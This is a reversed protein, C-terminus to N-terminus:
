RRKYAKLKLNKILFTLTLSPNTQKEQIIGLQMATAGEHINRRRRGTSVASVGPGRRDATLQESGGRRIRANLSINLYSLTKYSSRAVEPGCSWVFNM